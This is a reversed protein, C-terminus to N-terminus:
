VQYFDKDLISMIRSNWWRKNHYYNDRLLGDQHFGMKLYLANKPADFEYIETWVKHLCLEGFAYDLLLSCAEEAIGEDDIYANQWGIYLSLDAFRQLWNIYCLGCCGLLEQKEDNSVIAFMITDKDNIVYKDFWLEQNQENLERYERFYQRYDARNRWQMLQLLDQKQVARLAVKKGAIM